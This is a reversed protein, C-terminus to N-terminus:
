SETQTQHKDRKKEGKTNEETFEHEVMTEIRKVV